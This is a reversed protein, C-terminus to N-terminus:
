TVKTLQSVDRFEDPFLPNFYCGNLKGLSTPYMEATSVDHLMQSYFILYHTHNYRESNSLAGALGSHVSM